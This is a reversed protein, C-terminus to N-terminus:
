GQLLFLIERKDINQGLTKDRVVYKYTTSFTDGAAACIWEDTAGEAGEAGVITIEYKDPDGGLITASSCEELACAGSIEGDPTAGCATFIYTAAVLSIKKLM